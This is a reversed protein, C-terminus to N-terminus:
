LGFLDRVGPIWILAAGLAMLALLGWLLGDALRGREATLRALREAFITALDMQQCRAERPLPPVRTFLPGLRRTLKLQGNMAWGCAELLTALNRRRLKVTAVLLTPVAVVLILALLVYLVQLLNVTKITQLILAFTGGLAAVAVSGGMLLDRTSSASTQATPAPAGSAPGQQIQTSITKGAQTVSQDIQKEIDTYRSTTFREAQKGAFEALRKFPEKFAEWLGVPNELVDVVLADFEKGDPTFFVGRKGPWLTKTTGATVAAAIEFSEGPSRGAIEVYLLCIQSEQAIRKHTKRDMVRVALHFHRGDLVLTGLEVLSQEYPDYLSPFAVFNNALDLFWRQFLVLKEVNQIQELEAAARKDEEILRRLRGPLDGELYRCLADLGLREIAGGPREAQWAEYPQLRSKITEWAEATLVSETSGAPEMRALVTATFADLAARYVPNIADRLNLCCKPTPIALPAGQLTERLSAADSVNAAPIRATRESNTADFRVLACLAFYHDLREAIAAVAIQVAATDEGWTLIAPSEGRAHWERYAQADGLFRRLADETVGQLGSADPAGGVTVLIDRIFRSLDEDPVAEPPIVGDGNATASALIQQRNRVQALSITTAEGQGINSLIREAAARVAQGDAHSTDIDDLNLVLTREALHSRGRLMRFLWAQAARMEDSRIRRNSDTDLYRLFAPDCTLSEIPASTAAWAAEDLVAIHALDDAGRIVLQYRGGLKQMQMPPPAM